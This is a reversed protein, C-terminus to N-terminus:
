EKGRRVGSEFLYRLRSKEGHAAIARSLLTEIADGPFLYLALSGPVTNVENVYLIGDSYLFDVRVVGDAGIAEYAAVATQQVKRALEDSIRAPFERASKGKFGGREYKDAFTLIENWRLPKEVDSVIIGSEGRMVACNYEVFDELKKEVVVCNDWEFAEGLVAVLQKKDFATGVGISSGLRSPKVILPYGLTECRDTLENGDRTWEDYTVAAYPVQNLGAGGFVLKSLRKDLGVGSAAVGSCTYPIGATELVGQLCGDEGGAGHCCILAADVRRKRGSCVYLYPSAARLFCERGAARGSMYSSLPTNKRCLRWKGERTIFVPLVDHNELKSMAQFGTVVSVDHECSKGGFFVAIVM